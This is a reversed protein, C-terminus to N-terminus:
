FADSRILVLAYCSYVVVVVVVVVRRGRAARPISVVNRARHYVRVTSVAASVAGKL